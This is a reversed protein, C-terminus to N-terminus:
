QPECKQVEVIHLKTTEKKLTSTFISASPEGPINTDIWLNCATMDWGM